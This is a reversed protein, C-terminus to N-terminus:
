IITAEVIGEFHPDGTVVKSGSQRSTALIISDAMGWNKKKKKKYEHSIDGAMLAIGRDVPIL